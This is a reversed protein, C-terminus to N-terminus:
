PYRGTTSETIVHKRLRHRKQKVEKGLAITMIFVMSSVQVLMQSLTNASRKNTRHNSTCAIKM